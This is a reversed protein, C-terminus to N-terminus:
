ATELSLPGRQGTKVTDTETERDREGKLPLSRSIGHYRPILSVKLGVSVTLVYTSEARPSLATERM